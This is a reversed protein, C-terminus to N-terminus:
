EFTIKPMRHHKQCYDAIRSLIEEKEKADMKQSRRGLPYYWNSLTRASICPVENFTCIVNASRNPECYTLMEGRVDVQVTYDPDGVATPIATTGATKMKLHPASDVGIKACLELFADVREARIETNFRLFFGRHDMAFPETTRGHVFFLMAAFHVAIDGPRNLVGRFLAEIVAPPHCTAIQDLAQGLGAFFTASNLQEVLIDIRSSESIIEPAYRTIAIRITPDSHSAATRLAGVAAPTGLWALAEVDRWDRVGRALLMEETTKREAVSMERLADLDYGIGDHWKEYDIVTSNQFRVRAASPEAAMTLAARSFVPDGERDGVSAAEPSPPEILFYRRAADTIEGSSLSSNRARYELGDGSKRERSLLPSALKFFAGTPPAPFSHGVEVVQNGAALEAELLARLSAPMAELDKTMSDFVSM